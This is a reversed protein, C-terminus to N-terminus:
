VCVVGPVFVCEEFFVDEGRDISVIGCVREEEEPGRVGHVRWQLNRRVEELLKRHNCRSIAVARSTLEIV